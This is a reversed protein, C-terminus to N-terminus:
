LEELASRAKGHAHLARGLAMAALPDLDDLHRAVTAQAAKLDLGTVETALAHLSEGLRAGHPHRTARGPQQDIVGRYSRKIVLPSNGAWTAVDEYHDGARLRRSIGTHRPMRFPMTALHKDAPNPFAAALAPKWWKEAFTSLDIPAGTHTTFVRPDQRDEDSSTPDPEPVYTDLHDRLLAAIAPSMPA